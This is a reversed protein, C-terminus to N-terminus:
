TVLRGLFHGGSVMGWERSWPRFPPIISYYWDFWPVVLFRSAPLKTFLVTPPDTWPTDTHPHVGGQSCFSQCVPTFVNGQGLSRKRTTLICEHTTNNFLFWWRQSWDLDSVFPPHTGADSGAAPYPPWSVHFRHPRRQHGDKKHSTQVPSPLPCPGRPMGRPDAVPDHEILHIKSTKYRTPTSAVM